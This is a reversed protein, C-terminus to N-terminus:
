SQIFDAAVPREIVGGQSLRTSFFLIEVNEIEETYPHLRAVAEDGLEVSEQESYPACRDLYLIDGERDYRLTLHRGM